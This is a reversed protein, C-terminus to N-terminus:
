AGIFAVSAIGAVISAVMLLIYLIGMVKEWGKTIRQGGFRNAHKHGPFFMVYIYGIIAILGVIPIISLVTLALAWWGSHGRDHLRKILMCISIYMFAIFLPVFILIPVLIAPNSFDPSDLSAMISDMGGFLTSVVLGVAAMIIMFVIVLVFLQGLYSLVGLRGKASWISTKIAAADTQLDATPAVYPDNSV